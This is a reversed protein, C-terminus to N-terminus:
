KLGLGKLFKTMVEKDKKPKYRKNKLMKRVYSSDRNVRQCADKFTLGRNVLEKVMIKREDWNINLNPYKLKKKRLEPPTYFKNRGVKTNCFSCLDLKKIPNYRFCRTRFLRGCEPCTQKKKSVM